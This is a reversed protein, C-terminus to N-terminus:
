MTEVEALTDSRVERPATVVGSAELARAAAEGLLFRVVPRTAGVTSRRFVVHVPQQLPYAGAHVASSEPLAAPSNRDPAIALVRLERAEAPLHSGLALIQATSSSRRALAAFDAYREVNSKLPRGRLVRHRFMEEALGVDFEPTSAVITSGAWEGELGLDGWRERRAAGSEGFVGVLEEFAIQRLPCAAPVIAVACFYALPVSAFESDAFREDAPLALLGIDARGARLEQVAPRSGDLATAIRIGEAAGFAHLAQTFPLGLLDSGVLRVEPAAARAFNAALLVGAGLRVAGALGRWRAKPGRLTMAM